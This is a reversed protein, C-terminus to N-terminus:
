EFEFLTGAQTDWDTNPTHPGPLPGPRVNVGTNEMNPPLNKYVTYFPRDLPRTQGKQTASQTTSLDSTSLSPAPSSSPLQTDTTAPPRLKLIITPQFGFRSRVQDTLWNQIQPSKLIAQLVNSSNQLILQNTQLQATLDQKLIKLIAPAEPLNILQQIFETLDTQQDPLGTQQEVRAQTASVSTAALHDSRGQPLLSQATDPRSDPLQTAPVTSTALSAPHITTAQDMQGVTETQDTQGVIEVRNLQQTPETQQTPQPQNTQTPQQQHTQEIQGLQGIRDAQNDPITSEPQSAQHQQLKHNVAHHNDPSITEGQTANAHTQSDGAAIKTNATASPTQQSSGPQQGIASAPAAPEPPEFKKKLSQRDTRALRVKVLALAPLVGNTPLQLHVVEAVPMILEDYEAQNHLSRDLLFELLQTLCGQGDVGQSELQKLLEIDLQAPSLLNQATKELLEHPLLGLLQATNHEDYSDLQYGAITELLNIADRQSGASRTAILRLAADSICMGESTAISRLNAVIDSLTHNFLRLITLRSLVTPILKEANTTALLFILYEPPEELIKLLANMANKSLMHVEDIIFIKYRGALPPTKASEILQRIDDIGTHSAADLEIIDLASEPNQDTQNLQKAFIRALTTKGVGKPGSFLYAHKVRNKAIANQLVTKVLDQGLVETFQQPRYKNYWAM